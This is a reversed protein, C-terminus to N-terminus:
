NEHLARINFATDWHYSSNNFQSKGEINVGDKREKMM